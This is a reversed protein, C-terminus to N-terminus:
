KFDLKWEALKRQILFEDKLFLEPASLINLIFLFDDIFISDELKESFLNKFPEINSNNLELIKIICDLNTSLIPFIPPIILAYFWASIYNFNEFKEFLIAWIPPIAKKVM